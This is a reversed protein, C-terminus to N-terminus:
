RRRGPRGVLASAAVVAHVVGPVPDTDLSALVAGTADRVARGPSLEGRGMLAVVACLEPITITQRIGVRHSPAAPVAEGLADRYAMTALDVGCLNAFELHTWPRCNVEILRYAGDREDLLLLADFLGRYGIGELLRRVSDVASGLEAAPVSVVTTSDGLELPYGRLRRRTVLGRLDGGSDVFGDVFVHSGASSPVREQLLLELGAAQAVALGAAAEARTSPVFAKVMLARQFRGSRRPKLLYDGGEVEALEDGAAIPRTRPHPVGLRLAEEALRGKDLLIETAAGPRTTSPFRELLVPPLGLVAECWLDSCPVLVARELELRYLMEALAESGCGQEPAEAVPRAWRSWRPFDRRRAAVLVPVGARGLLRVTGLASYHSGLVIAPIM